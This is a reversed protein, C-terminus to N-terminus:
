NLASVGIQKPKAAKPFFDIVHEQRESELVHRYVAYTIAINAHGLVKSVVEVPVKRRLMLTGATHRLDHPTIHPLPKNDALLAEFSSRSVAPVVSHGRPIGRKSLEFYYEPQSWQTLEYLANKLNDPHTWNGIKTAFVAGTELWADEATAREELQHLRHQELAAILSPPLLIERRSHDTKTAEKHQTKSGVVVATHRVWLRGTKLDIDQWRLGMVESKRLGVSVATLVAVWLRCLGASYLHTGLEHLYALQDFDLAIHPRETRLKKIPKVAEVPNVYLIQDAVAERFVSKLRTRVQALTRSSLPKKYQKSNTNSLTTLADRVHTPKIDRLRKKGFLPLILSLDYRYGMRTKDSVTQRELWKKAYEGFTIQDPSALIGRLDDAKAKTLAQEAETKTDTIGSALVKGFADRYRWRYRNGKYSSIGGRGNGRKPTDPKIKKPRAM